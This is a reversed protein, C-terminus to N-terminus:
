PTVPGLNFESKALLLCQLYVRDQKELMTRMEASTLSEDVDAGRDRMCSTIWTRAQEMKEDFDAPKFSGLARSIPEFYEGSCSAASSRVNAAEQPGYTLTYSYHMAIDLNPEGKLHVGHEKFCQIMAFFSQEYEDFTVVGDALIREAYASVPVSRVFASLSSDLTVSDSMSAAQNPGDAQDSGSRCAGLLWVSLIAALVVKSSPSLYAPMLLSTGTISAERNEAAMAM